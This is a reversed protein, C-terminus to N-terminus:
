ITEGDKEQGSLLDPVDYGAIFLKSCTGGTFKHKKKCQSFLMRVVELDEASNSFCFDELDGCETCYDEPWTKRKSTVEKKRPKRPIDSRLM